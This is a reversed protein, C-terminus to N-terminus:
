LKASKFENCIRIYGRWGLGIAMLLNIIDAFPLALWVGILGFYKPMVLYLLAIILPRSLALFSAAKVYGISQTFGSLIMYGGFLFFTLGTYYSFQRALNIIEMNKSFLLYLSIPAWLFLCSGLIGIGTAICIGMILTKTIRDLRKAGYNFSIIPQVGFNLGQILMFSLSIIRNVIGFAALPYVGYKQLVQNAILSTFTLMGLRLGSPTGIILINKLISWEFYNYTLEEITINYINRIYFISIILVLIQSLITALAAGFVGWSIIVIFIYDLLINLVAGIIILIMTLKAQGHSRLAMSLLANLPIVFGALLIVRIYERTLDLTENNAGIFFLLPDLFILMIISLIFTLSFVGCIGSFLIKNVLTYNKAGLNQSILTGMGMSCWAAFAILFIQITNSITLAALATGGVFHGIFISDVTNYLASVLGGIMTPISLKILLSFIHDNDLNSKKSFEKKNVLKLDIKEKFIM